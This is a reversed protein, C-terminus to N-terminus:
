GGGTRLAAETAAILSPLTPPYAREEATMWKLYPLTNGLAERLGEVEQASQLASVIRQAMDPSRATCVELDGNGYGPVVVNKGIAKYLGGSDQAPESKFLCGCAFRQEGCEAERLPEGHTPCLPDNSAAPDDDPPLKAGEQAFPCDARHDISSATPGSAKCGNCLWHGEVSHWTEPEQADGAGERTPQASPMELQEVLISAQELYKSQGHRWVISPVQDIPCDFGCLIRAIRDKDTLRGARAEAAEARKLLNELVRVWGFTGVSDMMLKLSMSKQDTM